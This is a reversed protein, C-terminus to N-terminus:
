KRAADGASSIITVVAAQQRDLQQQLALLQKEMSEIRAIKEKLADNEKRLEALDQTLKKTTTLENTSRKELGQLLVMMIGDMDASNILTDCGIPGYKDKGFASFIEQAYAGYHRRDTGKYNWSGLRMAPLKQLFVEADAGAFKEKKTSDSISSWANDNANLFVGTTATGATTHRTYLRYGGAFRTVFQNNSFCRVSDTTSADGMVVSGEHGNTSARYGLAVSYDGSATNRYGLAVAGAGRAKCYYGMAIAFYNDATCGVGMSVSGAGSATNETGFSTSYLGINAEDWETSVAGGARLSGKSPHWMFRVGEGTAPITGVGQAGKALIGGASDVTFVKSSVPAGKSIYTTNFSVAGGDSVSIGTTGTTNSLKNGKLQINQTATHNGLQDQMLGWATGNYFYFGPTNDTQYIMLGTAPAAIASRQALTLRPILIGKATSKVDLISSLDPSSGDTNIAISQAQSQHVLIFYFFLSYFFTKMNFTKLVPIALLIKCPVFIYPCAQYHFSIGNPQLLHFCLHTLVLNFRQLFL